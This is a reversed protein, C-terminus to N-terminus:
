QSDEPPQPIPMWHSVTGLIKGLAGFHRWAGDRKVATFTNLWTSDYVLVAESGGGFTEIPQWDTPIAALAARMLVRYREKPVVAWAEDPCNDWESADSGEVELWAARVLREITDDTM